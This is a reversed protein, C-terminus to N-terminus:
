MVTCVFRYGDSWHIVILKSYFTRRIGLVDIFLVTLTAVDSPHPPFIQLIKHWIKEHNLTGFIMLIPWNKASNNLFYFISTKPVSHPKNGSLSNTWRMPTRTIFGCVWQSVSEKRTKLMGLKNQTEFNKQTNKNNKNMRVHKKEVARDYGHKCTQQTSKYYIFLLTHIFYQGRCDAVRSNAVNPGRELTAM